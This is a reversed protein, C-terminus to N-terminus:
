MGYSGRLHVPEFGKRPTLEEALIEVRCSLSLRCLIEVRSSLSNRRQTERGRHPPLDPRAEARLTLWPRASEPDLTGFPM